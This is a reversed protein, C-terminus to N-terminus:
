PVALAAHFDRGEIRMQRLADVVDAEYPREVRLRYHVGRGHVLNVGPANQHAIRAHAGPDGIAQAALAVVQRRIYHHRLRFPSGLAARRTPARAEQRRDVLARHKSGPRIRNEIQLRRRAHGRLPLLGRQLKQLLHIVQIREIRVRLKRRADTGVLQREPHLAMGGLRDVQGPLRLRDLAHVPEILLV